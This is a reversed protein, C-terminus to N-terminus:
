KIYCKRSKTFNTFTTNPEKNQQKTSNRISRRNQSNKEEIKQKTQQNQSRQINDKQLM